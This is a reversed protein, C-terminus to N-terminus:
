WVQGDDIQLGQDDYETDVDLINYINPSSLGAASSNTREPHYEGVHSDFIMGTLTAASDPIKIADRGTRTDHKLCLVKDENFYLTVREGGPLVAYTDAKSVHITWGEEMVLKGMSLLNTASNTFKDVDKIDMQVSHGGQTTATIALYGKGETWEHSGNFGCLRTSRTADEIEIAKCVHKAAGSDIVSGKLILNVPSTHDAQHAHCMAVAEPHKQLAVLYALTSTSVGDLYGPTSKLRLHEELFDRHHKPLTAPLQIAEVESDLTSINGTPSPQPADNGRFITGFLRKVVNIDWGAGVCRIRELPSVGPAATQDTKMGHLKEAETVHLDQPVGPHNPDNVWVKRNSQAQPKDPNGGWSSGLPRVKTVGKAVYTDIKREDNMCTNPDIPGADGMGKRPDAKIGDHSTWYARNRATTSYDLSNIVLPEGLAANVEAWDDNM